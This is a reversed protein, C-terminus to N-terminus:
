GTNQLGAAVGNITSGIVSRIAAAEDPPLSPDRLRALLEVQVASLADVYPNRLGISRELTPHGALLRDRGTVLLLLRVSRVYEAEIMARIATGGAGPDLDAYRRFTGLDAKALSLEANDLVSAFFPWRRYLGALHDVAARGGRATFAELATGLGYWGPLNARSQSWAFVWPIARLAGLDLPATTRGGGPRSTPRSGLALGAILDIPTAARFFAPLEPRELLARYATRSIAALEAMTTAGELAAAAVAAEHDETSALLAAASVQELHRTAIAPDAFHAAIVEGQETFKLRGDVSGPAQALIARGAPGGGRGIAGGRGHFLTLTIGHRRAVAVLAEQGRYLLWNAALFGSEKSSDSYGLMVEQRDGREALHARYGPDALLADLLTGAGTLADASELLPVVDLVPRAPPLGGLTAAAQPGGPDRAPDAALRALELVTVVDDVSTTFSIVYRRCAEPGFRAQLRAMARFTALVEGLTVGAAVERDLPAGDRLAALAARHVDAHQRVELSALHFGFAAVQARLDALEGWAVRALGGAVLADEVVALEADFAAADRYGGARASTEGALAARTRRIREAMAGFRQRYPEDPFRRRLQRVTEPLDEADRALASGLRRDLREPRVRAAVTQMLRALVAEYGRLLHEAHLRATALTTEATVGPHGDRDAGIWSGFTVIPPVHPPRTGSRGADSAVALAPRGDAHASGSRRAEVPGSSGPGSSGPGFADDLARDFARRLRPVVTFLTDDFVALAARVEDLPDPPTARLDATHWLLTIEERLRRRAEADEDPGIRPDDLLHLQRRIRRLAVLLTRRRAETPHATLVPHVELRAVLRRVTETDHTRALRAIADAVSDDIPRGRAKRARLRLMRVRQREEALNVLGFYVTFAKAVAAAQPLDLGRLEADIAERDADPETAATPDGRRLRIMRHRIREVLAFLDPGAQEAIVQGLLAGLLRVERALPDRAAAIGPGRPEAAVAPFRGTPRTPARRNPVRM